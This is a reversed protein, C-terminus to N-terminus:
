KVSSEKSGIVMFNKYKKEDYIKLDVKKYTEIYVNPVISYDIETKQLIANLLRELQEDKSAYLNKISNGTMSVFAVPKDEELLLYWIKNADDYIRDHIKNQVVRSGFFKGMYNYFNDSKNNLKLIINGKM